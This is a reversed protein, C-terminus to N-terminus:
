GVRSSVFMILFLTVERRRRVRVSSGRWPEVEGAGSEVEGDGEAVGLEGNRRRGAAHSSPLLEGGRWRALM